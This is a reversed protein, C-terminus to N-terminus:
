LRRSPLPLMQGVGAPRLNTNGDLAQIPAWDLFGTFRKWSLAFNRPSISSSSDSMPSGKRLRECRTGGTKEGTVNRIFIAVVQDGYESAVKGYIEPDQEGSDGPLFRCANVEARGV